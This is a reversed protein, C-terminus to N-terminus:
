FVDFLCSIYFKLVKGQKFSMWVRPQKVFALLISTSDLEQSDLSSFISSVLDDKQRSKSKCLARLTDVKFEVSQLFKTFFERGTQYGHDIFAEINRTSMDVVFNKSLKVVLRSNRLRQCIKRSSNVDQSVINRYKLSYDLQLNM